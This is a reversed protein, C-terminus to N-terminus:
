LRIFSSFRVCGTRADRVHSAPLRVTMPVREDITRSGCARTQGRTGGGPSKERERLDFLRQVIVVPFSPPWIRTVQDGGPTPFPSLPPPRQIDPWNHTIHTKTNTHIRHNIFRRYSKHQRWILTPFLHVISFLCAVANRLFRPMESSNKDPLDPPVSPDCMVGWELKHNPLVITYNWKSTIFQM